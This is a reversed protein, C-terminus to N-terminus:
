ARVTVIRTMHSLLDVGDWVAEFSLGEGIPVIRYLGRSRAAKAVELLEERSFGAHVLTQDRKNLHPVLALLSDLRVQGLVGGGHLDERLDLDTGGDLVLLENSSRVARQIRGQAALRSAYTLKSIATGTESQYSKEAIVRQLRELFDQAAPRYSGEDGEWYVLRPSGCGMQDFWFTDNYFRNALADRAAESQELYWGAKIAAYSFRDPFGLSLGDPRLPHRSVDRVKVDGGWILRLDAVASLPANHGATHDYAVFLHRDSDGAEELAAAIEGIVMTAVAGLKSPLRVVNANGALLSLAWSYLFLTDVNAPPLHFALGRPGVVAGEDHRKQEREVLRNLAAPRLWYGVAAIQPAQPIMPSRLLRRSLSGLTAVLAPEFPARGQTSLQAAAAIVEDASCPEPNPAFRIM